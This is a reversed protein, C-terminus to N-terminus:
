SLVLLERLRGHISLRQLLLQTFRTDAPRRSSRRARGFSPLSTLPLPEPRFGLHVARPVLHLDRRPSSASGRDRSSASVRELDLEFTSSPGVAHRPLIRSPRFRRRLSLFARGLCSICTWFVHVRLNSSSSHIERRSVSLDRSRTPRKPAQDLACRPDFSRQCCLLPNCADIPHSSGVALSFLVCM